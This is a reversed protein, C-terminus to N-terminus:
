WGGCLFRWFRALYEGGTPSDDRLMLFTVFKSSTRWSRRIESRDDPRLLWYAIAAAVVIVVGVEIM